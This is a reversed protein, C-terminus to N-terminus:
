YTAYYYNRENVLALRVVVKTVYCVTHLADVPPYSRGAEDLGCKLNLIISGDSFRFPFNKHDYFIM